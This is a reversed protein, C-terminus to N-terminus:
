RPRVWSESWALCATTSERGEREARLPRGSSFRGNLVLQARKAPIIITYVGHTRGGTGPPAHIAMPEMIDYWTLSLDVDRATIRETCFSRVDGLREFVADVVPIKTDAFPPNIMAEIEEQLWRALAINDSYAVIEDNTLESRLFLAHGAGGPSYLVRWHSATTTFDGGEEQGLRIFSNEGTVRVENSDVTSAM